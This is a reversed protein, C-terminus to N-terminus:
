ENDDLQAQLRDILEQTQSSTLKKKKTAAEMAAVPDGTLDVKPAWSAETKNTEAIVKADTLKKDGTRKLMTRVVSRKAVIVQKMLEQYVLEEGWAEIADTLTTPYTFNHEVVRQAEDKGTETAIVITEM